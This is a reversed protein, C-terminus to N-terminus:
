FVVSPLTLLSAIWADVEFEGTSSRVVRVTYQSGDGAKAMFEYGGAMDSPATVELTAGDYVQAAQMTSRKTTQRETQPHREQLSGVKLGHKADGLEWRIRMKFKRTLFGVSGAFAFLFGFEAM